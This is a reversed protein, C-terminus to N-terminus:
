STIGCIVAQLVGPEQIPVQQPILYICSVFSKRKKDIRVTKIKKILLKLFLLSPPTAM